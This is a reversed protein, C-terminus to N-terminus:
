DVTGQDRQYAEMLWTTIATQQKRVRAVLMLGSQVVQNAGEIAQSEHRGVAKAVIALHDLEEGFRGVDALIARDEEKLQEVQRAIELDQQLIDAYQQPHGYDFEGRLARVCGDLARQVSQVWDTLEGSLVPTGLATELRGLAERLDQEIEQVSM